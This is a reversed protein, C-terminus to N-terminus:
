QVVQVAPDFLATGEHLAYRLAVRINFVIIM